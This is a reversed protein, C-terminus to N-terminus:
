ARNARGEAVALRLSRAAECPEASAMIASVVAVGDAGNEVVEAANRANIGGIAILPLGVSRRINRLGELGTAPPTDTKTATDFVPSVGLYDAGDTMAQVAEEVRSVSVGIIMEPGAILRATKCDMDDQGLHVGRAGCALAIDLRDNIILPTKVRDLKRKLARALEVFDRSCIKKERLQVVTVGGRVSEGVIEELSGGGALRRDTVLYLTYDM